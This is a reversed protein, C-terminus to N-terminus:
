PALKIYELHTYYGTIVGPFVSEAIVKPNIVAEAFMWFLPIDSFENFRIDGIERLLRARESSDVVRGLEELRHDIVVNEYAAVISDKSRYVLRNTDLARFGHRLSFLGGHIAKTRYMARVKPFDVEVLKPKLGVAQFDLAMAQGIEVVEPLGPLTYLYITFEFGKEYGAEKLLTRAKAPDYGYLEDFRKDWDPNWIGPWIASDLKPHYGVLRHPQVRGGLISQAIANRNVAINMARRFASTWLPCRPIWGERCRLVPRALLWNLAVM